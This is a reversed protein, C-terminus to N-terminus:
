RGVVVRDGAELDGDVARVEVFGTTELGTTVVVSRVVDPSEEVEVRVSGDGSASLAALPVTLVEGGTSSIPITIRLNLGGIDQEIEETPTFQVFFRGSPADGGPEDALKTITAEFSLGLSEDDLQAVTGVELLPRDSAAVASNITVDAGSVTMVPGSVVDGREVNLRQVRRPVVDLYVVEARPVKTGTRAEIRDLEANAENLSTQAETVAARAGATSPAANSERIQAETIALESRAAAVDAANTTALASEAAKAADVAADAAVLAQDAATVDAALQLLEPETPAVGTDPHTGGQAEALRAAALDAAGTADTAAVVADATDAAAQKASEDAGAVAADVSAQARALAQENQLRTSEPVPQNIENLQNQAARLQARAASVGAAAADLQGEEDESVGAAAYGVSRYLAEVASETAADYTGTAAAPFGLRTLAEQLQTVDDGVTGPGLDRFMPLQGALAIVPRESVEIMVDGEEVTDTPLKPTGTVVAVGSAAGASPDVQVDLSGELVVDGRLVVTSSLERLEVPVTILSPEPAQADAGADAPSSITSGAWWGLGASAVAVALVGLLLRHRGSPAAM